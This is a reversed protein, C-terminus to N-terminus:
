SPSPIHPRDGKPYISIAFIFTLVLAMSQRMEEFASASEVRVEIGTLLRVVGMENWILVMLRSAILWPYIETEVFRM